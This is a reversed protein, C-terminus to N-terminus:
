LCAWCPLLHGALMAAGAAAKLVGDVLWLRQLSYREWRAGALANATALLGLLVIIPGFAPAMLMFHIGVVALIAISMAREGRPVYRRIAWFLAAGEISVAVVLSGVQFATPAGALRPALLATAITAVVAGVGLIANRARFRAAGLIVSLGVISLFLGGARILPFADAQSQQLM